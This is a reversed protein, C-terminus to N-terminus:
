KLAFLAEFKPHGNVFWPEASACIPHQPTEGGSSTSCLEHLDKQKQTISTTLSKLDETSTSCCAHLLLCADIQQGIVLYAICIQM